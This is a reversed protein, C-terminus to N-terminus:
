GSSASANEVLSKPSRLRGGVLKGQSAGLGRSSFQIQAPVRHQPTAWIDLKLSFPQGDRVRRTDGLNKFERLKDNASYFREIDDSAMQPSM